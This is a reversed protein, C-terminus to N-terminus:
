ELYQIEQAINRKLNRIMVIYTTGLTFLIALGLVGALLLVPIRLVVPLLNWLQGTMEGVYTLPIQIMFGTLLLGVIMGILAAMVIGLLTDLLVSIIIPRSEAGLARMVSFQRRMKSTRITSVILVGITLYTLAFLINLTYAGYVTQGARSSQTSDIMTQSSVISQFSFPAVAFLDEVIETHNTNEALNVYFSNVMTTNLCAQLYDINVVIFYNANPEGPLYTRSWRSEDASLVDVITCDSTNLGLPGYIRLEVESGYVPTQTWGSTIWHDVPRFSSLISTNDLALKPLSVGPTADYTFYDLWYASQLWENPQVGYVTVHMTELYRAGYDSTYYSIEAEITLMGSASVVGNIDTINEILDITVNELGPNVEMRVDAGTYFQLVEKMHSTGTTASLSCFIGAAFIMSIFMVGLAESKKAMKLHRSVVRSGPLIGPSKFMGLIRSKASGSPRSLLRTFAVIFAALLPVILIAFAMAGAPNMTIYRMTYLIPTLIYGTIGLVILEVAPSGMKETETLVQREIVSHAEEPSMMMARVAAPIAIMLGVSFSFGFVAIIAEIKLLLTFGSLLSFDFVLLERVTGSLLAALAGLGISGISGVIGTVVASSMIWRFAQWGSSGRTKLTGIDRRREDALLNSNYQVVIIAMVITPISFAIAIARISTSWAVYEYVASLLAFERVSAYPLVQQEIRMEIREIAEVPNMGYVASHDIKVWIQDQLGYYYDHGMESFRERIGDETTIIFLASVEPQDWNPQYMFMQSAFTGVITYNVEILYWEWT